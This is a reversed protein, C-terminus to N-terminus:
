ISGYKKVLKILNDLQTLVILIFVAQFILIIRESSIGSFASLLEPLFLSVATGTGTGLIFFLLSLNINKLISKKYQVEVEIRRMVNDEFDSFPMKVRSKKMLQAFRTDEPLEPM